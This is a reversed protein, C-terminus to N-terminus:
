RSAAPLDAPRDAPLALAAIAAAVVDDDTSAVGVPFGRSVRGLVLDELLGHGFIVTEGSPLQVLGGEDLMALRDQARTRLRSTHAGRAVAIARQRQCLARKAMPFAAWTLANMFDHLNHPRTPVVGRCCLDVYSDDIDSADLGAPLRGVAPVFDVDAGLLRRYEAVDPWAGQPHVRALRVVVCRLEPRSAWHEAWLTPAFSTQRPRNTV